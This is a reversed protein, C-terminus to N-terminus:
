KAASYISYDNITMLDNTTLKFTLRHDYTTMHDYSQKQIRDKSTEIKRDKYKLIEIEM